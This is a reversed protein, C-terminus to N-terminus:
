KDNTEAAATEHETTVTNWVGRKRRRRVRKELSPRVPHGCCHHLSPSFSISNASNQGELENSLKHSEFNSKSDGRKSQKPNVKHLNEPHLDRRVRDDGNSSHFRLVSWVLKTWRWFRRHSMWRLLNKLKPFFFARSRSSASDNASRDAGHFKFNEFFSRRLIVPKRESRRVIEINYISSM